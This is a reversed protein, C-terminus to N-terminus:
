RGKTFSDYIVKSLVGLIGILAGLVMDAFRISSEPIEEFCIRNIFYFTFYVAGLTLGAKVLAEVVDIIDDKLGSM